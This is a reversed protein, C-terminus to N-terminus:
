LRYLTDLTSGIPGIHALNGLISWHAACDRMWGMWACLLSGHEKHWECLNVYHPGPVLAGKGKIKQGKGKSKGQM